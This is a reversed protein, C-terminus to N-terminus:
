IGLYTQRVLDNYILDKTNGELAVRGRELVYGYSAVNLAMEANQEVLVISIGEVNIDLIIQGILDVMLPSLGSSPEDMLLVKPRSMLARGVAVMQREGGSLSGARQKAREALRPFYKYVKKLDQTISKKDKRLYSGMILNEYVTMDGFLRCKEPVLTIGQVLIEKSSLRDIRNGHFRIEGSLPKELGSIVRLTTTKGAGNAGIMCAIDSEDLNISIGLLTEAGGYSFHIDELQLITEDRM